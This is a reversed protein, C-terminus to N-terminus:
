RKFFDKEKFRVKGVQKRLETAIRKAKYNM